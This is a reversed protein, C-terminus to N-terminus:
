RDDLYDSVRRDGSNDRRRSKNRVPSRSDSDRGGYSSRARSRDRGNYVSRSRDRPPPAEIMKRDRPGEIMDRPGRAQDYTDWTSSSRARRSGRRESDQLAPGDYYWYGDRGKYYGENDRAKKKRLHELRKKHMEEHKECMEKHKEHEEAMEKWEGIAGKIGLAALGLAAADQWRSKRAQKHAEDPSMEGKAVAIVRKDHAQVNNYVKSGAHITAITAFGAALWKKRQMKKINHEEDTSSGLQSSSTSSTSSSRDRRRSTASKARTRRGRPPVSGESESGYGGADRAYGNRRSSGNMSSTRRGNRPRRPLVEGKHRVVEVIEEDSQVQSRRRLVYGKEEMLREDVVHPDEKPKKGFERQAQFKVKDYHLTGLKVAQLAVPLHEM